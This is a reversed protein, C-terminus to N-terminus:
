CLRKQLYIYPIQQRYTIPKNENEISVIRCFWNINNYHSRPFINIVWCVVGGYLECRKQVTGFIAEYFMIDQITLFTNILINIFLYFM